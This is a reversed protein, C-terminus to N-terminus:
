NLEILRNYVKRASIKWDFNEIIRTRCKDALLKAKEYNDYVFRMKDAAEDILKDSYDAFYTGEYIESWKDMKRDAPVILDPSVLFSDEEKLFAAQGGHFSSIIPLGCSAAEMLPLGWGEGRSFSVFAHSDGYVYPMAFTPISSRCQVVHPCDSRAGSSMDMLQEYSDGEPGERTLLVLTVDDKSSFRRFFAKLLVDYGKRWNWSMVSIFRFSKVGSSYQLYNSKPYFTESDVGLPFVYIPKKLGSDFLKQKDWETPVWIEDDKSLSSLFKSNYKGEFESMTLHINKSKRDVMQPASTVQGWVVPAGKNARTISNRMIPEIESYPCEHFNLSRSIKIGVGMKMLERVFNRNMTSYGVHQFMSGYWRCTIKNYQDKRSNLENALIVFDILKRKHDEITLGSIDIDVYKGPSGCITDSRLVFRSFDSNYYFGHELIM